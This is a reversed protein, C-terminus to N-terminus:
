SLEVLQRVIGIVSWGLHMAKNRDVGARTRAVASGLGAQPKESFRAYVLGGIAGLIAGVVAGVVIFRLDEEM